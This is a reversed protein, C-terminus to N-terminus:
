AVSRPKCCEAYTRGSKCPCAATEIIECEPGYIDFGIRVGRESLLKLTAVSLTGGENSERLFLGCFLDIEFDTALANWAALDSTLGAFLQAVQLNLNKPEQDDCRLLWMGTKEVVKAGSRSQRADGKMHSLSPSARLIRSVDDPVLIDGFIRLSAVSRDIAAM